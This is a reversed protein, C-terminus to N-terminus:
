VSEGAFCRIGGSRRCLQCILTDAIGVLMVLLQELFLPVIMERLDKASFPMQKERM